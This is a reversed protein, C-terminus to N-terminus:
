NTVNNIPYTQNESIPLYSSTFVEKLSTFVDEYDPLILYCISAATNMTAIDFHMWAYLESQDITNIFFYQIM